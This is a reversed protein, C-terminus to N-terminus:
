DELEDRCNICNLGGIDDEYFDDGHSIVHGCGDCKFSIGVNKYKTFTM